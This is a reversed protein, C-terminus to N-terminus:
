YIVFVGMLSYILGWISFAYGAASITLDYKEGITELTESSTLPAIYSSGFNTAMAVGFACVNVVQLIIQNTPDVEEPTATIEDFM